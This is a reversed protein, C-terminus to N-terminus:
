KIVVKGTGEKLKNLAEQDKCGLSKALYILNELENEPKREVKDVDIGKRQLIAKVLGSVEDVGLQEIYEISWGYESAFLDVLSFFQAQLRDKLDM